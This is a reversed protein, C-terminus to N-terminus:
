RYILGSFVLGAKSLQERYNNNVEFRHRHREYITESGYVDRVKTGKM